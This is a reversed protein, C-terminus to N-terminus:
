LLGCMKLLNVVVIGPESLRYYRHHEADHAILELQHLSSVYNSATVDSINLKKALERVTLKDTESFVKLVRRWADKEKVRNVLVEVGRAIFNVFQTLDITTGENFAYEPVLEVQINANPELSKAFLTALLVSLVLIRPGGSLNVVVSREEQVDQLMKSSLDVVVHTISSPAFDYVLEDIVLKSYSSLAQKILLATQESRRDDPRGTRVRILRVAYVDKLGRVLMRTTVPEHAFGITFYYVYV